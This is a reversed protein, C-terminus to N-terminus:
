SESGLLNLVRVILDRQFQRTDIHNILLVKIRGGFPAKNNEIKGLDFRICYFGSIPTSKKM